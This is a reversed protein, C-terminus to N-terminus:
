VGTIDFVAADFVIKSFGVPKPLFKGLDGVM